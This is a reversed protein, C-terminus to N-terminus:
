AAPYSLVVSICSTSTSAAVCYVRAHMIRSHKNCTLVNAVVLTANGVPTFGPYTVIIPTPLSIGRTHHLQQPGTWFLADKQCQAQQFDWDFSQMLAVSVAHVGSQAPCLREQCFTFM